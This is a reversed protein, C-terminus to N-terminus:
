KYSVGTIYRARQGLVVYTLYCIIISILLILFTDIFYTAPGAYVNEIINYKVLYAKILILFGHIFFIGFSYKALLDLIRNKSAGRDEVLFLFSMILIVLFVKQLQMYNLILDGNLLPWFSPLGSRDQDVSLFLFLIFAPLSTLLFAIAYKQFLRQNVKFAVGLLFVGLFHFVMYLPYTHIDPRFSTLSFFMFLALVPYFWNSKIIKILLPSILFILIIMPIFWLPEIMGGGVLYERVITEFTFTKSSIFFFILVAVSIYFLYPVLVNKLKAILYKKYEYRGILHWFLFGSIFVFMFTGNGFINLLFDRGVADDLAVKNIHTLVVFLISVGRLWNIYNLYSVSM